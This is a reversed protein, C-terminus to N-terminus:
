GHVYTFNDLPDVLIALYFEPISNEIDLKQKFEVLDTHMYLQIEQYLPRKLPHNCIVYVKRSVIVM